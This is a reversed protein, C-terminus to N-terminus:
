PSVRQLGIDLRADSRLDVSVARPADDELGWPLPVREVILRLRHRGAPV